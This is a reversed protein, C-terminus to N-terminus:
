LSAVPSYLLFARGPLDPLRRVTSFVSLGALARPLAEIGMADADFAKGAVRGACGGGGGSDALGAPREPPVRRKGSSHFPFTTSM